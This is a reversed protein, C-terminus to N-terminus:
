DNGKAFVMISIIADCLRNEGGRSAVALLMPRSSCNVSVGNFGRSRILRLAVGFDGFCLPM